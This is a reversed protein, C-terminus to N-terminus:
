FVLLKTLRYTASCQTALVCPSDLANMLFYEYFLPICSVTLGGLVAGGNVAERRIGGCM